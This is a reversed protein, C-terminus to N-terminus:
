RREPAVLLALGAILCGVGLYGLPALREGLLLVGLTAATLPEALTLTVASAVPVTRLARLYLVYPVATALVGLHLMVPVAPWEALWGLDQTLLVPLLLVTGLAFALAMGADPPVRAGIRQGALSLMAYAAGALLTLMLGPLSVPPIGSATSPVALLACGALAIGTALFWRASPRRGDVSWALLGAFIPASGIGVLTGVAVGALRVGSFFALQYTAIGVAAVLIPGRAVVFTRRELGGRLAAVVLLAAAGIALRLAGVTVPSASAPALAQSTGTTGWLM